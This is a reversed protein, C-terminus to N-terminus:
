KVRFLHVNDVSLVRELNWAAPDKEMLRGTFGHGAPHSNIVLWEVGSRKLFLGAATRPSRAAFTENPM